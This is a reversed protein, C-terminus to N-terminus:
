LDKLLKIFEDNPEAEPIYLIATDYTFGLKKILFALILTPSRSIGYSCYVLVKGNEKFTNTIFENVIDFYKDIPEDELDLIDIRISTIKEPLLSEYSSLNVSHTIGFKVIDNISDNYYSGLYLNKIVEKM